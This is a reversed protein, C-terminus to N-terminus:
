DHVQKLLRFLISKSFICVIDQIHEATGCPVTSKEVLIAKSRAHIAIKRTAGELATVDTASGAGLGRTKTPTNIAILIIDAEAICYLEFDAETGFVRIIEKWVWM